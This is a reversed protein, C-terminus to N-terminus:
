SLRDENEKKNKSLSESQKVRGYPAMDEKIDEVKMIWVTIEKTIRDTKVFARVDGKPMPFKKKNVWERLTVAKNMDDYVIKVIGDEIVDPYVLDFVRRSYVVNKGQPGYLFDDIEEQTPKCIKIGDITVNSM